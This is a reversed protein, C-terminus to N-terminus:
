SLLPASLTTLAAMTNPSYSGGVCALLPTSLTTLSAMARPIYSGGVYALLPASLTTLAAMTSPSYSGGVRALLPTSLTTLSAMIGPGYTSGVGIINNQTITVLGGGNLDYREATVGATSVPTLVGNLSAPFGLTIAYTYPPYNTGTLTEIVATDLRLGANATQQVTVKTLPGGAPTAPLFDTLLPTAADLEDVRKNAM